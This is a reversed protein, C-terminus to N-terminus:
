YYLNYHTNTGVQVSIIAGSIRSGQNDTVIGKIGKHVQETFALLANKNDQWFSSLQNGPPYKQCSLELTIEFCNSQQYNYDQM